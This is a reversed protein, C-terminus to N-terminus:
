DDQPPPHWETVPLVPQRCGGEGHRKTGGTGAWEERRYEPHAPCFWWWEGTEGGGGGAYGFSELIGEVREDIEGDVPFKEMVWPNRLALDALLRLAVNRESAFRNETEGPDQALNFLECRQPMHPRYTLKWLGDCVTYLFAADPRGLVMSANLDYGNIQDAYALAPELGEGALLPVLSRGSMGDFSHGALALLTPAIDITRVMDPVVCGAPVGPGSLLLPVHLQEQYTMRHKGWGHRRFGDALGEGHDATVALLTDDAVGLEDLADLIRGIQSDMYRVEAAYVQEYTTSNVALADGETDLHSLYEPPPLRGPDHPDWLHIWLFFPQDKGRVENLYDVVLDATTDSRRQLVPDWSTKTEGERIGMQGDLSDFHDFDLDFGFYSSVPFASHIAATAYGAERLSRTITPQEEGLQFGSGASLVRLGHEYPFRGTLISAHSVPTVGSTSLVAEFRAGQAAIEDMRPTGSRSPDYCQLYDPRTTDLTILVVNPHSDGSCAGTLLGATALVLATIWRQPRQTGPTM